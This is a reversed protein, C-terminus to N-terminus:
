HSPIATKSNTSKKGTIAEHERVFNVVTDIAEGVLKATHPMQGGPAFPAKGRRWLNHEALVKAAEHPSM